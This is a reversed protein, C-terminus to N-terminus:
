LKKKVHALVRAYNVIFNANKAFFCSVHYMICSVNFM